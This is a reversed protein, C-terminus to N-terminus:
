PGCAGGASVVLHPGRRCCRPLDFDDRISSSIVRSTRAVERQRRSLQDGSNRPRIGCQDSDFSAGAAVRLLEVLSRRSTGPCRRRHSRRGVSSATSQERRGMSRLPMVRHRPVSSPRPGSRMQSRHLDHWCGRASAPGGRERRHVPQSDRCLLGVGGGRGSPLPALTPRAPLALSTCHNQERREPLPNPTPRRGRVDGRMREEPIRVEVRTLVVCTWLRLQRRARRSRVRRSNFPSVREAGVRVVVRWASEATARSRVRHGRLSVAV